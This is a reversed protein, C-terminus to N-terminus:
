PDTPRSLAEHAACHVVARFRGWDWWGRPDLAPDAGPHAALDDPATDALGDLAAALHPLDDTEIERYAEIRENEDLAGLTGGVEDLLFAYTYFVPAAIGAAVTTATRYALAALFRRVETQLGTEELTERLLAAHVTEGAEVGGTMLRYVGRPYFAKTSVLLRGSPRRVVMCVESTRGPRALAAQLAAPSADISGLRPTWYQGIELDVTRVLPAGFRGALAALERQVHEPLSAFM